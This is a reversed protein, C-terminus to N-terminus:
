KIKEEMTTAEFPKLTEGVVSGTLMELMRQDIEGYAVTTRVYERDEDGKKTTNTQSCRKGRNREGLNPMDRQMVVDKYSKKAGDGKSNEIDIPIKSVPEKTVRSDENRRSDCKFSAMSAVLKSGRIQM